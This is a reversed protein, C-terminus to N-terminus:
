EAPFDFTKTPFRLAHCEADVKIGAIGDIEVALTPGRQLKRHVSRRVVGVVVFRRFAAVDILDAVSDSDARDCSEHTAVDDFDGVHFIAFPSNERASWHAGDHLHFIVTPVGAAFDDVQTRSDCLPRSLTTKSVRNGGVGRIVKLEHGPERCFRSNRGDSGSVIRGRRPHSGPAFLNDCRARRCCFFNRALLQAQRNDRQRRVGYESVVALIVEDTEFEVVARLRPVGYGGPILFCGIAEDSEASGGSLRLLLRQNKRGIGDSGPLLEQVLHTFLGLAYCLGRLNAEDRLRCAGLWRGSVSQKWVFCFGHLLGDSQYTLRYVTGCRLPLGNKLRRRLRNSSIGAASEKRFRAIDRSLPLVLVSIEPRSAEPGALEPLQIGGGMIFLIAPPGFEPTRLQEALLGHLIM